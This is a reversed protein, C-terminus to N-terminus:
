TRRRAGRVASPSRVLDDLLGALEKPRSLFPSHSSWMASAAVLRLRSLYGDVVDLNRVFAHDNLCLIYSRPVQSRWFQDLRTPTSIPEIPQPCLREFAWQRDAETCDNYFMLDSAARSEIVLESDSIRLGEVPAMPPVIELITRGQDPIAAALCILHHLNHGVVGAALAAIAGGMSHGVLIDGPEIVTAVADVYSDLTAREHQRQGHGPLDIALYDHGLTKMEPALRDWCWAGHAAGHVFVFRM